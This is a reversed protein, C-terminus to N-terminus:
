KLVESSYLIFYSIPFSQEVLFFGSLVVETILFLVRVVLMPICLFSVKREANGPWTM